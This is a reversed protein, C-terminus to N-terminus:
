SARTGLPRSWQAQRMEESPQETNSRRGLRAQIRSVLDAEPERGLVQRMVPVPDDFVPALEREDFTKAMSYMGACISDWRCADCASGKGHLFELQHVFGKQDLFRICREEEKIIKRTETSAWAFRTMFCLPVREARFTRGTRHLYEMALELSVQFEYHRPICDPNAEARNGDPDMNNWVFHRIFPFRDCLWIVTEHLHDANYANIVTNIDATIGMEPVHSLCAVLTEWAQPYKTIYDHVEPRYSHLSVHIHSLGADVCQRFFDRDALLQGNTIMRSYLGREHAYRLAPFLLPSLTPEGGTLIVGDYGMDALEDILGRMEQESLDMGTPPNSCFRCHQYCERTLQLYGLNAM